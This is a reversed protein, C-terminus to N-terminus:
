FRMRNVELQLLLPAIPIVCGLERRKKPAICKALFRRSAGPLKLINQHKGAFKDNQWFAGPLALM